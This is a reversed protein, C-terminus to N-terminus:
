KQFLTASTNFYWRDPAKQELSANLVRAMSKLAYALDDTPYTGALRKNAFSPHFAVKSQHYRALEALTDPLSWDDVALIHHIWSARHAEVKEVEGFTQADFRIQQGAQIVKDGLSRTLPQKLVTKVAGKFVALVTTQGEVRVSFRTGLAQMDGHVSSVSFPREPQQKDPATQVMLEGLWIQLHRQTQSYDLDVSSATNIWLESQDALDLARTQGIGTQLEAMMVRLKFAASGIQYGRSAEWAVGAGVAGLLISKIVARRSVSGQRLVQGAAGLNMPQMRRELAQVRTWAEQHYPDEEMWQQWARYQEQSADGEELISHWECAAHLIEQKTPTTELM